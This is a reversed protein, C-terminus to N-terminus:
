RLVVVNIEIQLKKHKLSDLYQRANEVSEFKEVQSSAVALSAIPEPIPFPVAAQPPVTRKTLSHICAQFADDIAPVLPSAFEEAGLAEQLPALQHPNAACLSKFVELHQTKVANVIDNATEIASRVVPLNLNDTAAVFAQLIDDGQLAELLNRAHKATTFRSSDANAQISKQLAELVGPLRGCADGHQSKLILLNEVLADVNTATRIQSPAKPLLAIARTYATNWLAENPLSQERLDWDQRVADIDATKPHGYSTFTRKAQHAFLLVILNRLHDPLGMAQPEDM